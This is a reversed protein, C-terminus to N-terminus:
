KAQTSLYQLRLKELKILGSLLLNVNFM